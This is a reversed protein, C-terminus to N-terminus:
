VSYRSKTTQNCQNRMWCVFSAILENFFPFVIARYNISTVRSVSNSKLLSVPSCYDRAHARKDESAAYIQRHFRNWTEELRLAQFVAIADRPQLLFCSVSGGFGVCRVVSWFLNEESERLLWRWHFCLLAASGAVSRGTMQPPLPHFFIKLLLM